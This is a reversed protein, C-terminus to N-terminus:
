KQVSRLKLVLKCSDDVIESKAGVLELLEGEQPIENGVFLKKVEFISNAVSIFGSDEKKM